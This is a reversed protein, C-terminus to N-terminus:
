SPQLWYLDKGTTTTGTHSVPCKPGSTTLWNSSPATQRASNNVLSRPKVGAFGVYWVGAAERSDQRMGAASRSWSYWLTQTEDM